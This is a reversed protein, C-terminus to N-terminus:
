PSGRFWSMAKAISEGLAVAGIFVAVVSLILWRGFWGVARLDRFLKILGRVETQPISSLYTLTEVQDPSMRRLMAKVKEDLEDFRKADDSM